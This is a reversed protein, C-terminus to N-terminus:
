LVYDAKENDGNKILEKAEQIGHEANKLHVNAAPFGEAGATRAGKSASDASEARERPVAFGGCASAAVLLAALGPALFPNTKEMACSYAGAFRSTFCWRQM